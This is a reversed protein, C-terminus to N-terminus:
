INNEWKLTYDLWFQDWAIEDSKLNLFIWVHSAEQQGINDVVTNWHAGHM